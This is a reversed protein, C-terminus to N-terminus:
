PTGSVSPKNRRSKAGPTLPLEAVPSCRGQAGQALAYGERCVSHRFQKDRHGRGPRWDDYVAAGLVGGAVDPERPAHKATAANM